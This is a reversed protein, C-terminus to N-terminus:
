SNASPDSDDQATIPAVQRVWTAGAPPLRRRPTRILLLFFAITLFGFIAMGGPSFDLFKILTLLLCLVFGTTFVLRAPSTHSMRGSLAQSDIFDLAGNPSGDGHPLGSDASSGTSESNTRRPSEYKPPLFVRECSRCRVWGDWNSSPMELEALCYVCSFTISDVVKSSVSSSRNSETRPEQDIRGTWRILLQRSRLTSFRGSDHTCCAPTQRIASSVGREVPHM